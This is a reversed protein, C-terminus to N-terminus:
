VREQVCLREGLMSSTAHAYCSGCEGQDVRPVMCEPAQERWSFNHPPIIEESSNQTGTTLTPRHFYRDAPLHTLNFISRLHELSLGEHYKRTPHSTWDKATALGVLLLVLTPLNKM